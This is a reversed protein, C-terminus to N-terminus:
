VVSEVSSSQLWKSFTHTYM